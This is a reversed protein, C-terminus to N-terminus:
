KPTCLIDCHSCFQEPEGCISRHNYGFQDLLDYVHKPTIDYRAMCEAQMELVIKPMFRQITQSGGKLAFYEAGELDLKVFDLRALGLDDISISKLPGFVVDGDSLPIQSTGLYGAGVNLAHYQLWLEARGFWLPQNIAIADPCNRKLCEFYEPNPEFAWVKGSPGVAKLYASTHDGMAAGGDIVTDGWDLLPMIHPLLNLDSALGKDMIERSQLDIENVVAIGNSLIRMVNASFDGFAARM